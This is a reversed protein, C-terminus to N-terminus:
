TKAEARRGRLLSVPKRAEMMIRWVNRGEWYDDKASSSTEQVVFKMEFSIGVKMLIM